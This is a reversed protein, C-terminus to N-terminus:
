MQKRFPDFFALEVTEWQAAYTTIDKVVIVQREYDNMMMLILFSYRLNIM